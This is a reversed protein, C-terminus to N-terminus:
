LVNLCINLLNKFFNKWRYCNFDVAWSSKPLKSFFIICLFILCYTKDKCLSIHILNRKNFKIDKNVKNFFKINIEAFFVLLAIYLAYDIRLLVWQLTQNRDQEHCWNVLRNEGIWLYRIVFNPTIIIKIISHFANPRGRM